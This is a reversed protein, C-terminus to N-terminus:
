QVCWALLSDELLRRSESPIPSQDIFRAFAIPDKRAWISAAVQLAESRQSLPVSLEATELAQQPAQKAWTTFLVTIWKSGNEGLGGEADEALIFRLASSYDGREGLLGILSQGYEFSYSPDEDCFRIAEDVARDTGSQTAVARLRAAVEAVRATPHLATWTPLEAYAEESRGGVAVSADSRQPPTLQVAPQAPFLPRTEGPVPSARTERQAPTSAPSPLGLKLAVFGVLVGAVLLSAPLASRPTRAKVFDFPSRPFLGM